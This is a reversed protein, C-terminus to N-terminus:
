PCEEGIKVVAFSILSAQGQKSGAPENQSCVLWNSDLVQLRNAGKADTSSTYFAPNGSVRQVDDQAAQLTKGVENPMLFSSPQSSAPSSAPDSTTERTATTQPPAPATVTSTETTAPASPTATVTETTTTTGGQGSTAGCGTLSLLAAGLFTSSILVRSTRSHMPSTNVFVVAQDPKTLLLM